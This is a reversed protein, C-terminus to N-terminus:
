FFKALASSFLKISFTHISKLKEMWHKLLIRRLILLFCVKLKTTMSHTFIYTFVFNERIEYKFPFFLEIVNENHFNEVNFCLMFFTFAKPTNTKRCTTFIHFHFIMKWKKAGKRYTKWPIFKLCRLPDSFFRSIESFEFHFFFSFACNKRTWLLRRICM